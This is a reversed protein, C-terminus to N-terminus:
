ENCFFGTNQMMYKEIKLLRHEMAMEISKHTSRLERCVALAQSTM